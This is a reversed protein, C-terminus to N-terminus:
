TGIKATYQRTMGSLYELDAIHKRRVEEQGICYAAVILADVDDPDVRVGGVSGGAIKVRIMAALTAIQAQRPDSM